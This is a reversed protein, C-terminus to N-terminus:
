YCAFASRVYGSAALVKLYERELRMLRDETTLDGNYRDKFEQRFGEVGYGCFSKSRELGRDQFSENVMYLASTSGRASPPSLLGGNLKDYGVEPSILGASHELTPDSTSNIAM